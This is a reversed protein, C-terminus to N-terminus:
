KNISQINVIPNLIDFQNHNLWVSARSNGNILFQKSIKDIETNLKQRQDDLLFNQIHIIGNEQIM